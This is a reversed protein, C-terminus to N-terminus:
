RILYVPIKAKHVVYNSVSGLMDGKTSGTGTTSMVIHDFKGNKAFKVTEIGPWGRLIKTSIKLDKKKAIRAADHVVAKGQLITQKDFEKTKPGGEEIHPIVNLVTLKSDTLSSLHITRNLAKLSQKLGKVSCDM